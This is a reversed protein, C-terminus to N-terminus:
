GTGFSFSVQANAPVSLMVGALALIGIALKKM